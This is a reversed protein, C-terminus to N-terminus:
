GGCLAVAIAGRGSQIATVHLNVDAPDRKILEIRLTGGREVRDLGRELQRGLLDVHDNRGAVIRQPVARHEAGEDSREAAGRSRGAQRQRCEAWSRLACARLAGSRGGRRLLPYLGQRQ